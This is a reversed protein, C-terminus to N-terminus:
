GMEYIAATTFHHGEGACDGPAEGADGLLEAPGGGGDAGRQVYRRLVERARVSIKNASVEQRNLGKM